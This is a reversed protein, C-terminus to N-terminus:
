LVYSNELNQSKIFTLPINRQRGGSETWNVTVTILFADAAAMSAPPTAVTQNVTYIGETKIVTPGGLAFSSFPQAMVLEIAEQAYGAAETLARASTNGSIARIQMSAVALLGISFIFLAVMVEILSFGSKENVFTKQLIM